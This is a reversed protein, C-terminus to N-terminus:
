RTKTYQCNSTLVEAGFEGKADLTESIQLIYKGRGNPTKLASDQSIRVGEADFNESMSLNGDVTIHSKETTVTEESKGTLPYTVKKKIEYEVEFFNKELEKSTAVIEFRAMSTVVEADNKYTVVRSVKMKNPALLEKKITGYRTSFRTENLLEGPRSSDTIVTSVGRCWFSFRGLEGMSADQATVFGPYSLLTLQLLAFSLVKKM